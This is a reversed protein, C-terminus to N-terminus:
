IKCLSSFLNLFNKGCIAEKEYGLVEQTTINCSAIVFDPEISFYLIGAKSYLEEYFKELIAVENDSSKEDIVSM